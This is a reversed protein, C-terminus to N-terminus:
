DVLAKELIEKILDRLYKGETVAKLKLRRHLNEKINVTKIDKEM